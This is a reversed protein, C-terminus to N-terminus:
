MHIWGNTGLGIINTTYLKKSHACKKHIQEKKLECM